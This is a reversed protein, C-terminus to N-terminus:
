RNGGKAIFADVEAMSECYRGDGADAWQGNFRSLRHVDYPYAGETMEHVDYRYGDREVSKVIDNTM